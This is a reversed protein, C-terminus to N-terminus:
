SEQVGVLGFQVSSFMDPLAHRTLSSAGAAREERPSLTLVNVAVVQLQLVVDVLPGEASPRLRPSAGGCHCCCVVVCAALGM